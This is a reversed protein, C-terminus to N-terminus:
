LFLLDRKIRDGEIEILVATTTNRISQGPQIVLSKKITGEWVGGTMQFSEHIHGCLVLLPQERKIWDYVAKSGVRRQDICVDLNLGYPPCHIAAITKSDAKLNNLDEEITGKKILYENKDKVTIIGRSGIDIPNSPDYDLEWGPHDIKCATKLGFPLDPVYGYATFTYGDRNYPKEDLLQGYKKFYKKRTYIDDNGFFAIIDINEAQCEKYFNKLYGDVFKKQIKLISSGKPLIDAGIHILKIDHELAFNQIKQYSEINGHLDTAYIFKM